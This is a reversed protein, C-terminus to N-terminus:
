AAAPQGAEAAREEIHRVRVVSVSCLAEAVVEASVSGLHRRLASSARAGLIIHGVDNHKAFGLIAHAPSLAEVVHYSISDEGLGFSAAWDKLGVLRNIYTSRGDPDSLSDQGLLETKLVTLCALRAGHATSLVRRAEARVEEALADVGHSLDVAVLIVSRGDSHAVRQPNAAAPAPKRGFLKQLWGSGTQSVEVEAPIVVQEPHTLDFAVNGANSYRRLPDVEMCKAIVAALWKPALPNISRPPAPAHYLRRKMGAPSAPDGFPKEGTALEYLICGLAYIDSQMSNRNGLVQEPSIYAATGMPVSSEEGLFDPLEFHRSLGFDILVAGRDALFVNDPKLDLHAVMQRHISGLATAILAGIRAVERSDVPGKGTLASLNGGDVLEMAIYPTAALDGSGAFRPVHPGSLRKLIMEEVEYGVITSVDAGPDFFPLKLVLPFDHDPHSAKWVSGMGGMALRETLVFGDLQDGTKFRDM